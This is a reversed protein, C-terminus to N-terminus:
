FLEFFSTLKLLSVKLNRAQCINLINLLIKKNDFNFYLFKIEKATNVSVPQRKFRNYLKMSSRWMNFYMPLFIHFYWSMEKFLWM